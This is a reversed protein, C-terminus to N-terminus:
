YLLNGHKLSNVECLIWKGGEFKWLVEIEDLIDLNDFGKVKQKTKIGYSKSLEILEIETFNSMGIRKKDSILKGNEAFFGSNIYNEKYDVLDYTLEKNIERFHIMGRFGDLFYGNGTIGKNNKEGFLEILDGSSNKIIRVNKTKDLNDSTLMIEAISDGDFDANTIKIVGGQYGKLSKQTFSKTYADYLILDINKYILEEETKEGVVIIMNNKSNGITDFFAYNLIIKPNDTKMQNFEQGIEIELPDFETFEQKESSNFMLVLLILIGTLVVFKIKM